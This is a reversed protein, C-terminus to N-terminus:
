QYEVACSATFLLQLHYTHRGLLYASKVARCVKGATVTVCETASLPSVAVTVKVFGLELRANKIRARTM